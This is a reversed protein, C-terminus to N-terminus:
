KSLEICVNDQFARGTSLPAVGQNIIAFALIHGNSATIYGALSAIGSVSGTKARVNGEAPTGIMRKKLTGDFGSIPLSTLLQKHIHETQWAYRLMAVLMEASAYNYLSLGSGDAVKYQEPQLGLQEMLEATRQSAEKQGAGKEAVTAAIQYFVCEAYINDSKKMM